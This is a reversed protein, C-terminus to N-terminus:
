AQEKAQESGAESSADALAAIADAKLKQEKKYDYINYAAISASAVVTGVILILMVLSFLKHSKKTNM